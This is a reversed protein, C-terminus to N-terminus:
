TSTITEDKFAIDKIIIIGKTIRSYISKGILVTM